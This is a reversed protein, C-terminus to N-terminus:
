CGDNTNCLLKLFFVQVIGVYFCRVSLKRVPIEGQVTVSQNGVQFKAAGADCTNIDDDFEFSERNLGCVCLCVPQRFVCM